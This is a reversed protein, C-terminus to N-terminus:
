EGWESPVVRTNEPLNDYAVADGAKSRSKASLSSSLWEFLGAFNLTEDLEIVRKTLSTLIEKDYGSVGVAWLELKKLAQMDTLRQFAAAYDDNPAGDSIMFIWPRHYPVGLEKYQAKREELLDIATNLGAGMSTQGEATLTPVEMHTIPTFSQLINVDTSFGVVAIDLSRCLLEDDICQKRFQKVADNLAGIANNTEMSLSTDLLLVCALHQDNLSAPSAGNDASFVQQEM